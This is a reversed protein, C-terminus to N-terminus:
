EVTIGVYKAIAADCQNGCGSVSRTTLRQQDMEVIRAEDNEGSVDNMQFLIKCFFMTGDRFVSLASDIAEISLTLLIIAVYEALNNM